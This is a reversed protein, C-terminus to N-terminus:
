SKLCKFSEMGKMEHNNGNIKETSGTGRVFNKAKTLPPLIVGVKVLECLLLTTMIQHCFNSLVFNHHDITAHTEYWTEHFDM